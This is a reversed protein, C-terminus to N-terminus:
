TPASLDTADEWWIVVRDTGLAKGPTRSADVLLIRLGVNNDIM